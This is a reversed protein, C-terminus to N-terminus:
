RAKGAALSKPKVSTAVIIGAEPDTVSPEIRFAGQWARRAQALEEAASRGKPLVWQTDETSFKTTLNLLRDMPAFARASIVDYTQDPDIAEVRKGAISVRHRLGMRDVLHELFDIRKRRSEVLTIPRAHLAAIVVGPFGAGAGFDIWSNGAVHLALQASDVIHRSWITSITSSAILNQRGNEKIVEDVLTELSTWTERSVHFHTDIWARAEEETM